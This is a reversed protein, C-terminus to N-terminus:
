GTQGTAKLSQSLKRRLGPFAAKGPILRVHSLLAAEEIEDQVYAQWAPAPAILEVSDLVRFIMGLLGPIQPIGALLLTRTKLSARVQTLQTVLPLQFM